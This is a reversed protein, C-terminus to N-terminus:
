VDKKAEEATAEQIQSVQAMAAAVSQPVLVTRPYSEGSVYIMNCTPCSYIFRGRLEYSLPVPKLCVTCKLEITMSTQPSYTLM